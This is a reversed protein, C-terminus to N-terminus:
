TRCKREENSSRTSNDGSARPRAFHEPPSAFLGPALTAEEAVRKALSAHAPPFSVALRGLQAARTCHARGGTRHIAQQRRHETQTPDADM